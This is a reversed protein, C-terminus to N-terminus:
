TPFCSGQNNRVVEEHGQTIKGDTAQFIKTGSFFGNREKELYPMIQQKQLYGKMYHAM